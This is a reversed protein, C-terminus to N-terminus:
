LQSKKCFYKTVISDFLENLKPNQFLRSIFNKLAPISLPTGIKGNAESIIKAHLPTILQYPDALGEM